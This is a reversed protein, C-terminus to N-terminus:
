VTAGDPTPTIILNTHSHRMPKNQGGGKNSEVFPMTVAPTPTGFVTPPSRIRGPRRTARTSHRISGPTSSGNRPEEVTVDWVVAGTKRDLAILHADLTGMYLLDGLIGFGRNVQGCCVRLLDPLTRRYRWIERGTRADIAWATNANGTIYMVGDAM